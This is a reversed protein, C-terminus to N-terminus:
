AVPLNPADPLFALLQQAFQASSFPKDFFGVMGLRLVMERLKPSAYASIGVVPIHKLLPDAFLKRATQIGDMEPMQIDMLILDPQQSLAMKLGQAGNPAIIVQHGAHGLLLSVLRVSKEDDDIVLVKKSM